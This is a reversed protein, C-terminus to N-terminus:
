AGAPNSGAIGALSCGCIWAKSTPRVSPYLFKGPRFVYCSFAKIDRILFFIYKKAIKAAREQV